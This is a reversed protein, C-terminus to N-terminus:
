LYQVYTHLLPNHPFAFTNDVIYKKKKIFEISNRDVEGGGKGDM